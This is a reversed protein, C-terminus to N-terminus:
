AVNPTIKELVEGKGNVIFLEFGKEAARGRLDELQIAHAEYKRGKERKLFTLGAEAEEKALFTPIFSLEKETDQQGLFQENAGPDQIIVWVWQDDKVATGM